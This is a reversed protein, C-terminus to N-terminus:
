ETCATPSAEFEMKGSLQDIHTLLSFTQKPVFIILQIKFLRFLKSLGKKEEEELHRGFMHKFFLWLFHPSLFFIVDKTTEANVLLSREVVCM